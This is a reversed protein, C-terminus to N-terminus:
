SYDPKKKSDIKTPITIAIIDSQSVAKKVDTTASLLSTKLYGRIRNEADGKFGTLKCKTVNNIRTPDTDACITKFGADAFLVAQFIGTQECGIITVTYKERKEPTDIEETKALMILSSM